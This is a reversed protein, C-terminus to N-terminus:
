IKIKTPNEKSHAMNNITVLNSKLFKVFDELKEEDEYFDNRFNKYEQVKTKPIYFFGLESDKLLLNMFLTTTRNNSNAFIQQKILKAGTSLIFDIIKEPTDTLKLTEFNQIIQNFQEKIEQENFSLPPIYNKIGALRVQHSRVEGCKDTEYSGIMKNANKLDQLKLNNIFLHNNMYLSDYAKNVGQIMLITKLNIHELELSDTQNYSIIEEVENSSVDIAEIYAIASFIEGKNNNFYKEIKTRNKISDNM